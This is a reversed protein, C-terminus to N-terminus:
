NQLVNIARAKNNATIVVGAAVSIREARDAGIKLDYVLASGAFSSVEVTSDTRNTVVFAYDDKAYIQGRQFKVLPELPLLDVEKFLSHRSLLPYWGDVAVLIGDDHTVVARCSCVKAPNFFSVHVGVLSAIKPQQVVFDKYIGSHDTNLHLSGRGFGHDVSWKLTDKFVAVLTCSIRLGSRM